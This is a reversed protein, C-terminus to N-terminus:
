QQERHNRSESADEAEKRLEEVLKELSELRTKTQELEAQLQQAPGRRELTKQIVRDVAQQLQSLGSTISDAGFRVLHHLAEVPPIARASEGGEAIIKILTEATLDQGTANDLVELEQGERILEALDALRVYRKAETDYLKRNEYRKIIRALTVFRNYRAADYVLLIRGVCRRHRNGAEHALGGTPFFADPPLCRTPGRRTGWTSRSRFLRDTKKFRPMIRRM